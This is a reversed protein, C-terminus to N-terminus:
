EVIIWNHEVGIQSCSYQNLDQSEGDGDNNESIDVLEMTM